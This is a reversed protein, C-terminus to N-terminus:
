NNLAVLDAGPQAALWTKFQAPEVVNVKALMFAHNTGCLAACRAEFVGSRIPHVWFDAVLGPVMDRKILFEPIWFSHIVDKATTLFRIDTDKPITLEDVSKVRYSKIKVMVAPNGCINRITEIDTGSAAADTEYYEFDWGFQYGTVKVLLSKKPPNLQDIVLVTSVAGLVIMIIAPVLTWVIELGTHGHIAVGEENPGKARFKWLSFAILGVVLVFFAICLWMMIYSLDAIKLGYDSAPEAIFVDAFAPLAGFLLLFPLGWKVISPKM